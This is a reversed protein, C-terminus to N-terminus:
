EQQPPKAPPRESGSAPGGTEEVRRLGVGREDLNDVIWRFIFGAYFLEVKDGVGVVRDNIMAMKRDGISTVGQVAVMRRAEEWLEPPPADRAPTQPAAPPPSPDRGPPLPPRYGVPRFPDRLRGPPSIAEDSAPIRAAAGWLAAAAVSVRLAYHM